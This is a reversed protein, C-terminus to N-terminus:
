LLPNFGYWANYVLLAQLMDLTKEGRLLMALAIDTGIQKSTVEQRVLDEYSAIMLMTRYLWPRTSELHQPTEDASLILFPIHIAFQERFIQLLHESKDQSDPDSSDSGEATSLNVTTSDQPV